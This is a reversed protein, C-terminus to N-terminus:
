MKTEKALLEIWRMLKKKQLTSGIITNGVGFHLPQKGSISNVYQPKHFGTPSLGIKKSWHKTCKVVSHEKHMLIWFRITTKEIALYEVVFRILLHHLDARHSSFRILRENSLDGQTLYLMLGAIFLPAERYHKYELEASRVAESYHRKRETNRAKNILVLRQKNQVIAKKANDEAVVKSFPESKLWNSVTSRSVGCIKSIESYTFGRKRFQLVNQYELAKYRM